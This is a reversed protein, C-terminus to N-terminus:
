ENPTEKLIPEPWKMKDFNLMYRAYQCPINPMMAVMAYISLMVNQRADSDPSVTIDENDFYVTCNKGKCAYLFPFLEDAGGKFMFISPIKVTGNSVVIESHPMTNFVDNKTM